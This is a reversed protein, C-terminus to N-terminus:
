LQSKSLLPKFQVPGSVSPNNEIDNSCYQLIWTQNFKCFQFTM